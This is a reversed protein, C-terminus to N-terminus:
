YRIKRSIVVSKKDFNLFLYRDIKPVKKVCSDAQSRQFNRKLAKVNSFKRPSCAGCGGLPERRPRECVNVMGNLTVRKWNLLRLNSVRRRTDVSTVYRIIWVNIKQDRNKLYAGGWSFDQSRAQYTLQRDPRVSLFIGLADSHQKRWLLWFANFRQITWLQSSPM